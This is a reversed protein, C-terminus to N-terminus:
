TQRSEQRTSEGRATRSEELCRTLRCRPSGPLLPPCTVILLVSGGRVCVLRCFVYAAIIESHPEAAEVWVLDAGEHGPESVVQFYELGLNRREGLLVLGQCLFWSSCESSESAGVSRAVSWATLTRLWACCNASENISSAM